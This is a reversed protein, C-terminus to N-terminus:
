HALPSRRHRRVGAVAGASLLSVLVLAGAGLGADGWEFGSSSSEGSDTSVLVVKPMEIGNAADRTDPSRLDVAPSAQAAVAKAAADRTDPSRLDVGQAGALTAPGLTLGAVALIITIQRRM